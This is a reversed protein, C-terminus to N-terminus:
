TSDSRRSASACQPSITTLCSRRAPRRGDAPRGFGFRHVDFRSADLRDAIAGFHKGIPHDPRLYRSAVGVKIRGSPGSYGACHPATWGLQPSAGLYFNALQTRLERDNRGHYATYFITSSAYRLPDPLAIGRAALTTLATAVRQRSEDIEAVTAPIVPMRLASVVEVGPNPVLQQSQWYAKAADEGRGLDQLVNGLHFCAQAAEEKKGQADLM